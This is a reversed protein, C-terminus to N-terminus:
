RWVQWWKRKSVGLEAIDEAKIVYRNGSPFTVVWDGIGIQFQGSPTNVVFREPRDFIIGRNIDNVRQPKQHLIGEFLTGTFQRKKVM